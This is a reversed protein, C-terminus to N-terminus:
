EGTDDAFDTNEDQWLRINVTDSRTEGPDGVSVLTLTWFGEDASDVDLDYEDEGRAGADLRASVRGVADEYANNVEVEIAHETGVPGGGPTITATGVTVQGTSSTLDINVPGLVEDLGVEVTLTNDTANFQM